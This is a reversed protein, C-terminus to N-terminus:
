SSRVKLSVAPGLQQGPNAACYGLLVRLVGAYDCLVELAQALGLACRSSTPHLHVAQTYLQVAQQAAGQQLLTNAVTALATATNASNSADPPSVLAAQLAEMGSSHQLLM